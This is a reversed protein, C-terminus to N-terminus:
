ATPRPENWLAKLDLQTFVRDYANLNGETIDPKRANALYIVNNAYDMTVCHMNGTQFISATSLAMQEANISGWTQNLLDGLCPDHSPQEHKDWYFVDEIIPHGTWNLSTWNYLNYADKAIEIGHFTNSTSDGIGVHIACTRNANQIRSLAVSMNPATLADRLIFMWPEGETGEIGKAHNLWVKEGIGITTNSLGTLVGVMGSWGVNAFVPGENNHYITVQAFSSIPCTPDFDLGRLQTLKGNTTSAGTAGVITCAAKTLEPFMNYNQVDKVDVGAGDAIGQMEDLYAQPAFKKTSNFSMELLLPAGFAVIDDVLSSPLWPVYQQAMQEIYQVIMPALQKITSQLLQGQAFGQQYPTGWVHVVHFTDNGSGGVFLKGNTVSSVFKPAATYLPFPNATGQCSPPIPATRLASAVFALLVIAILIKKFM